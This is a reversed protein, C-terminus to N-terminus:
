RKAGGRGGSLACATLRAGHDRSRASGGRACPSNSGSAARGEGWGSVRKRARLTAARCPPPRVVEGMYRTKMPRATILKDVREVVQCAGHCAGGIPDVCASNLTHATPFPLSCWRLLPGM